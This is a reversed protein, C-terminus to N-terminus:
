KKKSFADKASQLAARKLKLEQSLREVEAEHQNIVDASPGEIAEAHLKQIESFGEYVWSVNFEFDICM